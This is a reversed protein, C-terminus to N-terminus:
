SELPREVHSLKVPTPIWADLNEVAFSWGLGLRLDSFPSKLPIEFRTRSAGVRGRCRGTFHLLAGDRVGFAPLPAKIPTRFRAESIAASLIEIGSTRVTVREGWEFMALEKPLGWISRGGAVSEASDVYIHSVWGGFRRGCRVLASFVILESYALTSEEGYQALYIGGLTRGPLVQVVRLSSPVGHIIRIPVLQLNLYARGILRWPAPPYAVPEM